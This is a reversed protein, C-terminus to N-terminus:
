RCFLFFFFRFKISLAVEVNKQMRQEALNLDLSKLYAYKGYQRLM